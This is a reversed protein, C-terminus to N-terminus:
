QFKTGISFHDGDLILWLSIWSKWAFGLNAQGGVPDIEFDDFILVKTNIKTFDKFDLM